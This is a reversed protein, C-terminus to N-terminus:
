FTIRVAPTAAKTNTVLYIESTPSTGFTFSASMRRPTTTAQKAIEKWMIDESKLEIGGTDVMTFHRDRWTADTYLRDRTVGPRDETISIKRGAVKNFFTSKGVNPRGVLAILPNAM